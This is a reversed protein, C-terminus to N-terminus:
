SRSARKLRSNKLGTTLKSTVERVVRPAVRQRYTHLFDVVAPQDRKSLERLAWSLAKVVLDDRDDVLATCIRLTRVPDGTGGRSKINLPVTCVLALRRQWRDTSRVWQDIDSDTLLGVRWAQGGLTCGFLDVMGWDALGRSWKILRARSLAAVAVPHFAVLEYAILRGVFSGRAVLADAVALVEAASCKALKPSLTRRVQRLSPVNPRALRSVEADIEALIKRVAPQPM